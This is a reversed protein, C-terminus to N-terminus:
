KGADHTTQASTPHDATKGGHAAAFGGSPDSATSHGFPAAAPATGQQMESPDFIGRRKDSEDSRPGGGINSAGPPPPAPEDRRECGLGTLSLATLGAIIISRM